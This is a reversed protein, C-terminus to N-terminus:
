KMPSPSTQISRRILGEGVFHSLSPGMAYGHSPSAALFVGHGCDVEEAANADDVHALEDWPRLRRQMEAIEARLHHLDLRGAALRHPRKRWEVGVAPARGVLAHVAALGHHLEIELGLRPLAGDGIKDRRGVNEDLTVPRAHEIPEAEIALGELAEIGAQDVHREGAE